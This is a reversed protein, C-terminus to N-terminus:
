RILGANDALYFKRDGGGFCFYCLDVSFKDEHVENFVKRLKGTMADYCRVDIKTLLVFYNFYTNFEVQLVALDDNISKMSKTVAANEYFTCRKGAIVFRDLKGTVLAM